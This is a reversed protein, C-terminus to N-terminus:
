PLIQVPFNPIQKQLPHVCLAAKGSDGMRGAKRMRNGVTQEKFKLDPVPRRHIEDLDDIVSMRCKRIICLANQEPFLPQKLAKGATNM